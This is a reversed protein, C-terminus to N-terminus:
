PAAERIIEITAAMPSFAIGTFPRTKGNALPSECHVTYSNRSISTIIATYYYIMGPDFEIKIAREKGSALWELAIQEAERTELEQKIIQGIM